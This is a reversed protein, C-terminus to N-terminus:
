VSHGVSQLFANLSEQFRFASELSDCEIKRTGGVRERKYKLEGRKNIYAMAGVCCELWITVRETRAFQEGMAERDAEVDAPRLSVRIGVVPSNRSSRTRAESKGDPETM